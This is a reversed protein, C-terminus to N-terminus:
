SDFAQGLTVPKLGLSQTADLIRPLVELVVPVGAATRAAHGDHLLLIDGAALGNALKAAVAEPDGQRTDFGRRTWTVLRLGLGHLVPDLFPNKMGAPPRFFRPERGALLGLMAQAGTLERKLAGLGLMAFTPQHERSHNEVTHGRRLIERVLEPHRVAREAICFFTARAGWADLIDLVRPTVEADPGDDFTIAVEGRRAAAPPLRTFNPGLLTSRPWTVAIALVLHNAALAGFAWPWTEFAVLASAGAVCHLGITGAVLPTPRWRPPPAAQALEASM